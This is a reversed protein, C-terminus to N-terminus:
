LVFACALDNAFYDDVEGLVDLLVQVFMWENETVAKM